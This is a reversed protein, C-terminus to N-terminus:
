WVSKGGDVMLNHGTIYSSADSCLFVVAGNIEDKKAMRNLPIKSSLIEVFKKDHNNYVGSPSISNVRINFKAWYTSLYKTMGIIASKSMVYSLPTNFKVGNYNIKLNKQYIRHDPSIVGVDSAINVISGAKSKKMHKGFIKTSIFISSLNDKISDQFLKLKYKEFSEFFDDENSEMSSKTQSATNILCDIKKFKKLILKSKEFVDKEESLNCQFCSYKLNKKKFFNKVLNIKKKDIDLIIPIGNYKSISKAFEFGLMGAGGTIVIVKDKLNM